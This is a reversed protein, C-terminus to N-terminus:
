LNLVGFFLVSSCYIRPGEPTPLAREATHLVCAAGHHPLPLDFDIQRVGARLSLLGLSLTAAFPVFTDACISVFSLLSDISFSMLPSLVQGTHYTPYDNLYRHLTTALSTLIGGITNTEMWGRESNTDM